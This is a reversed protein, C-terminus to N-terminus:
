IHKHMKKILSLIKMKHLIGKSNEIIYDKKKINLYKKVIVNYNSSNLSILFKNRNINPKSSRTMMVGDINIAKNTDVQYIEYYKNIKEFINNGKNSQIILNTYGNDDDKKEVLKSFNWCDYITFDSCRKITKFRCHYCSPRSSIESFFSKLMIDIRASGYYTKGNEFAIKMTGSHYGYTKNRFIVKRVKSNYRKEKDLLYENWLKPSPVGHCVFDVTILKDYDKILFNKLGAVQCPAGIFCVLKDKELLTKIQTYCNELNSQVYKSGRLNDISENSTFFQHVVNFNSDYGAGCIIGKQELVWIALPTIFGGSTSNKVIDLNNARIVYSVLDFDNLKPSNIMPCVKNCLSCNICKENDIIPYLFGEDDSKMLIANKPCINYCATCGCCDIKDNLIIM